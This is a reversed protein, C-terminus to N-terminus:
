FKFFGGGTALVLFMNCHDLTIITLPSTIGCNLGVQSCLQCNYSLSLSSSHCMQLVPMVLSLLRIVIMIHKHYLTIFNQWTTAFSPTHHTKLINTLSILQTLFRLLLTSKFRAHILVKSPVCMSM